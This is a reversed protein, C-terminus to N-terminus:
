ASGGAAVVGASGATGRSAAQSGDGAPARGFGWMGVGGRRLAWSRAWWWAALSEVSPSSGAESVFGALATEGGAGLLSSALDELRALGDADARPLGAWERVLAGAACRAQTEDGSYSGGWSRLRYRYLVEGVAGVRGDRSLRLWLGYDQARDLREDYGGAGLVASRRMMVSGHALCNEELLRLRLAAPDGPPRVVARVEGAFWQEWGCGLVALSGERTMVGAQVELRRPDCWDDADMRAVLGHVCARLGINLAGALNVGPARVVRVSADAACAEAAARGTAVDEGNLVLVVEAPALTQGLVCRLAEGLTGSANRVPMLVSVKM